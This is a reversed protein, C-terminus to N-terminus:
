TSTRESADPIGHTSVSLHSSNPQRGTLTTTRSIPTSSSLHNRLIEETATHEINKLDRRSIEDQKVSKCKEVSVLSGTYGGSQQQSRTQRHTHTHTHTHLLGQLKNPTSHYVQIGAKQLIRQLKHSTSGLYPLSTSLTLSVKDTNPVPKTTKIKSPNYGNCQLTTQIHRLEKPLSDPDCIAYARVLTRNVSSKISPHHFSCKTSTATQTPPNGTFTTTCPAMRIEPSALM